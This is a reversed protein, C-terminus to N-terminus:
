RKMCTWGAINSNFEFMLDYCERIDFDIRPINDIDFPKNENNTMPIRGIGMSWMSVLSGIEPIRCPCDEDISIVGGYFLGDKVELWAKGNPITKPINEYGKVYFNTFCSIYINTEPILVAMKYKVLWEISDDSREKERREKEEARKKERKEEETENVYAISISEKVYNNETYKGIKRIIEDYILPSAIIMFPIDFIHFSESDSRVTAKDQRHDEFWRKDSSSLQIGARNELDSVTLNGLYVESM